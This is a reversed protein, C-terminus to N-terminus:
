LIAFPHGHSGESFAAAAASMKRGFSAPSAHAPLDVYLGVIDKLKKAFKPDNSLKLM